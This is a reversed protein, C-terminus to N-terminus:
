TVDNIGILKVRVVTAWDYQSGDELAPYNPVMHVSLIDSATLICLNGNVAVKGVPLEFVSHAAQIDSHRARLSTAAELGLYKM